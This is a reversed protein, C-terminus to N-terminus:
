ASEYHSLHLSLKTLTRHTQLFLRIHVDSNSGLRCERCRDQADNRQSHSVIGCENM